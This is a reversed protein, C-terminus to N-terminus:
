EKVLRSKAFLFAALADIPNDPKSKAIHVLGEIIHGMVKEDLYNELLKSKEALFQDDQSKMRNVSIDHISDGALWSQMENKIQEERDAQIKQKQIEIKRQEEAIEADIEEQPRPFARKEGLFGFVLHDVQTFAPVIASSIGRDDLFKLINEERSMAKRYSRLSKKFSQADDSTLSANKELDKDNGEVIIANTPIHEFHPSPQEEEGVDFILSARENSDAFGSIVWGYNRCVREAMKRHAVKCIVEDNIQGESEEIQTRIEDGFPSVEKRVESVLSRPEILPLRLTSSIKLAIEHFGSSPPGLVLVKLPELHYKFRFEDVVKAACEVIGEPCHLEADSFFSSESALETQLVALHLPSINELIPGTKGDSLVKSFAKAIQKLSPSQEEALIYYNKKEEAEPPHVLLQKMAVGLNKVHLCSIHNKSSPFVDTKGEWLSKFFPFFINEGMGYLLGVGFIYLSLRNNEQSLQIARSELRYQEKVLEHPIRSLFEDENVPTFAETETDEEEPNGETEKEKPEEPEEETAEKKISRGGWTLLPSILALNVKKHLPNKNIIDLAEEVGSCDELMEFVSLETSMIGEKRSSVLKVRPDPSKTGFGFVQFGQEALYVSIASGVYNSCNDIFVKYDSPKREEEIDSDM